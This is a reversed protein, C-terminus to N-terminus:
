LGIDPFRSSICVGNRLVVLLYTLLSTTKFFGIVIAFNKCCSFCIM